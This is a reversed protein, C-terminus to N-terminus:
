IHSFVSVGPAKFVNNRKTVLVFGCLERLKREKRGGKMREEQTM